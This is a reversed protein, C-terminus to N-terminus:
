WNQCGEKFGSWPPNMGNIDKYFPEKNRKLGAALSLELQAKRIKGGCMGAVERESDGTGEEVPRLNEEGGPAELIAGQEDM